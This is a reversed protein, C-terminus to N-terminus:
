RLHGVSRGAVLRASHVVLMVVVVVVVVVMLDRLDADMAASTTRSSKGIGSRGSGWMKSVPSRPEISKFIAEEARWPKVASFQL